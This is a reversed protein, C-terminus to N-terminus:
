GRDADELLAAAAIAKMSDITNSAHTLRDMSYAGEGKQIERLAGELKAIRERLADADARPICPGHQYSLNPYRSPQSLPCAAEHQGATNVTCYSCFTLM